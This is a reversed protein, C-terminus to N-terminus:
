RVSAPLWRRPMTGVTPISARNRRTTAARSVPRTRPFGAPAPFFSTNWDLLGYSSHKFYNYVSQAGATKDNFLQEYFSFPHDVFMEEDTEDAFKVFCVLNAKTQGAAFTPAAPLLMAVLLLLQSLLRKKKM